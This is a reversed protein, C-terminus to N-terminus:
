VVTSSPSELDHLLRAHVAPLCFHGASVMHLQFANTTQARWTHLLRQPVMRDLLGGYATIPCDLPRELSYRYTERMEVDARMSPLLLDLLECSGRVDAPFEGYRNQIERLFDERALHRM